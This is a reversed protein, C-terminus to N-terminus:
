AWSTEQSQTSIKIKKKKSNMIYNGNQTGNGKNLLEGKSDTLNM